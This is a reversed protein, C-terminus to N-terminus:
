AKAVINLIRSNKTTLIMVNVKSNLTRFTITPLSSKCTLNLSRKLELLIVSDNVKKIGVFSIKKLNPRSVLSADNM